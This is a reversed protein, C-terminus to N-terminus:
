NGEQRFVCVCKSFLFVFAHMYVCSALTQNNQKYNGLTIPIKMFICSTWTFLWVIWMNLLLGLQSFQQRQENLLWFIM